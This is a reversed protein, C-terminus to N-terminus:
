DWCILSYFDLNLDFIEIRQVNPFKSKSTSFVSGAAKLWATSFVEQKDFYHLQIKFEIKTQNKPKPKPKQKIDIDFNFKQSTKQTQAKKRVCFMTKGVSVIQSSHTIYHIKIKQTEEKPSREKTTGIYQISNPEKKQKKQELRKENRQTKNSIDPRGIKM